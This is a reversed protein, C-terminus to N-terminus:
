TEAEAILFDAGSELTIYVYYSLGYTSQMYAIAKAYPLYSGSSELATYGTGNRSLASNDVYIDLLGPSNFWQDIDKNYVAMLIEPTQYTAYSTENGIKRVYAVIHENEMVYAPAGAYSGVTASTHLESGVGVRGTQILTRPSIVKTETKMLWDMRDATGNIMFEGADLRLNVTRRSGEGESAVEQVKNDLNGMTTKWKDITSAAKMNNMVPVSAVYIITVAALIIALFIVGSVLSIGKMM